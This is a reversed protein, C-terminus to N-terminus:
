EYKEDEKKMQEKLASPSVTKYTCNKCFPYNYTCNVRRDYECKEKM